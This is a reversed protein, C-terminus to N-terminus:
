ILLNCNLLYTDRHHSLSLQIENLFRGTINKGALFVPFLIGLLCSFLVFVQKDPNALKKQVATMNFSSNESYELKRKTFSKVFISEQQTSHIRSVMAFGLFPKAVFLLVGLCFFIKALKFYNKM